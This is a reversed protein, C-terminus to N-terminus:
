TLGSVPYGFVRAHPWPAQRQGLRNARSVIRVQHTQVWRVSRRRSFSSLGGRACGPSKYAVPGHSMFFWPQRLPCHMHSISLSM